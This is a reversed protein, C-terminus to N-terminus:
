SGEVIDDRLVNDLLRVFEDRVGLPPTLFCELNRSAQLGNIQEGIADTLGGPFLFYPLVGMRRYGSAVAADIRESIYPSVSWYACFVPQQSIEALRAATREVPQNGGCRRTGHSVLMWADATQESMAQALPVTLPSYSGIYTLLQLRVTAPLMQRAQEVEQPIDERVHVGELLFLPLIRITHERDSTQLLKQGLRYIESHLPQPGCELPASAIQHPQTPTAVQTGVGDTRYSHRNVAVAAGNTPSGQPSMWEVLRHVM